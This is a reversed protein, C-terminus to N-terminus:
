EEDGAGSGGAGTVLSRFAEESEDPGTALVQNGTELRTHSRPRYTWRGGRNVALVYMGTVRELDLEALTAGAATAEPGIEARVVVEDSQSLALALVPHVDERDEALLAIEKAADGIVESASALHLLGRLDEPASSEGAAMLVWRELDLRMQDTRAELAEVEAAVTRDGYLLSAYALGVALEAVNKMEVLTDVARDLDSLRPPSAEGGAQEGPSVGSEAAEAIKGAGQERSAPPAAGALERLAAKGEEPGQVILVDGDLVVEDDPPGFRWQRGRRIAIVSMGAMTPLSIDDLTKGDIPSGDRVWVRAIMEEAHALDAQLAAPIGMRRLVVRAIDEAANGIKEIARTVRVVGTLQRADDASRAALMALTWMDWVLEDTREELELVEEAIDEDYFFVAAYALDVTLESLNKAETLLDKINHQREREESM